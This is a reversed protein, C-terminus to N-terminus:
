KSKGKLKINGDDKLLNFYYLDMMEYRWYQKRRSWTCIVLQHEDVIARIHILRNNLNNASDYCIKWKQGVEPIYM